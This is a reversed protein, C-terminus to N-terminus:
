AESQIYSTVTGGSVATSIRHRFAGYPGEAMYSSAHPSGTSYTITSLGVWTGAYDPSAAAEIEVVGASVSAGWEITHITRPPALHKFNTPTTAKTEDTSAANLLKQRIGLAM